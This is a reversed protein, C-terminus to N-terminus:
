YEHHVTVVKFKLVRSPKEYDCNNPNPNSNPDPNPNTVDPNVIKPNLCGLTLTL